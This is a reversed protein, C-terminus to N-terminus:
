VHSDVSTDADPKAADRAGGGLNVMGFVVCCLAAGGLAAGIILNEGFLGVGALLFIVAALVWLFRVMNAVTDAILFILSLFFPCVRLASCQDPDFHCADFRTASGIVDSVSSPLSAM